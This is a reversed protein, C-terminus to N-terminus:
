PDESSSGGFIATEDFRVTLRGTISLPPGASFMFEPTRSQPQSADFWSVYNFVSSQWHVDGLNQGIVALEIGRWEAAIQADLLLVQPAVQGLPIPREGLWGVGVGLTIAISEGDITITRTGAADLRGVWRPVYPLRTSSVFDTYGPTGLYAETYSFSAAASLWQWARVNLYASVGLRSTAGQDVNRGALPDFVLDHDVHTHFGVARADLALNPDAHSELVLGTESSLVQAFPAFEGESLRAADSSRTGIGSSTQWEISSAGGENPPALEALRVRLTGRPQLAVGIADTAQEPLRTGMRDTSPFAHDVVGFAFVDARGGLRLSLWYAFSLDGGVHAGVRTIRITDDFTAAYPTGTSARMRLQRTIGSDHRVSVGLEFQQMRGLVEGEFRYRGTLGVTGVEYQEDQGDGRADHIMGTFNESV